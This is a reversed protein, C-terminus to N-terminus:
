SLGKDDSCKYCEWMENEIDFTEVDILRIQQRKASKIVWDLAEKGDFGGTWYMESFLTHIDNDSWESEIFDACTMLRRRYLNLEMLGIALAIGFAAGLGGMLLEM